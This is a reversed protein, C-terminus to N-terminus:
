PGQETLLDSLGLGPHSDVLASLDGRLEAVIWDRVEAAVPRLARSEPHVMWCQRGPRVLGQCAPVLAGERLWHSVVNLWGAAVGQGVLVAQVVVSYDTFSLSKGRRGATELAPFERTWDGRGDSLRICTVKEPGRALVDLYGPACVPLYAEPMIPVGRPPPEGPGIFRMALDVDDYRGGLPGPVLQFRLDVAPFARQFRDIRPMLWHTTFETSVSLTVTAVGSRRAEITALEQQIGTFGQSVVRFLAEGDETLRVGEKGRLFLRTGLYDELGGLARSVAPQTVNLEAAARTFNRHRAAAEFVFLANASPLMRRLSDM